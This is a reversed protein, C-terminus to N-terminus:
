IRMLIRYYDVILYAYINKSILYKFIFVYITLYNEMFFDHFLNYMLNGFIELSKM